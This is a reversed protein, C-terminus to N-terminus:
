QEVYDICSELDQVLGAKIATQFLIGCRDQVLMANYPSQIIANSKKYRTHLQISDAINLMTDIIPYKKRLYDNLIAADLDSGYDLTNQIKDLDNAVDLYDHSKQIIRLTNKFLGATFHITEM